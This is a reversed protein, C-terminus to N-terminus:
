DIIAFCMYTRLFMCENCVTPLTHVNRVGVRKLRRVFLSLDPAYYTFFFNSGTYIHSFHNEPLHSLIVTPQSEYFKRGPVLLYYNWFLEYTSPYYVYLRTSASMTRQTQGVSSGRLTALNKYVRGNIKVFISLLPGELSSTEWITTLVTVKKKTRHWKVPISPVLYSGVQLLLLLLLLSKIVTNGSFLPEEDTFDVVISFFLIIVM